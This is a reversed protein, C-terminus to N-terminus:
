GISILFGFAFMSISGAWSKKQNYPLKVHGFKRGMIDAVGAARLDCFGFLFRENFLFYFLSSCIVLKTLTFLPSVMVVM